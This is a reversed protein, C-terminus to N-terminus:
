CGAREWCGAGMGAGLGLVRLVRLVAVLVVELVGV